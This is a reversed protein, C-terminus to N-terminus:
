YNRLDIVSFLEKESHHPTASGTDQLYSEAIIISDNSISGSNNRLKPSSHCIGLVSHTQLERVLTNRTAKARCKLGVVFLKCFM